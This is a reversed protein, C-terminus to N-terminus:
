PRMQALISACGTINAVLLTIFILYAIIFVTRRRPAPFAGLIPLVFYALCALGYLIVRRAVLQPAPPASPYDSFLDTPPLPGLLHGIGFPVLLGLPFTSIAVPVIILLVEFGFPGSSWLRALTLTAVALFWTAVFLLYRNRPRDVGSAGRRAPAQGSNLGRAAGTPGRSPLGQETEQRWAAADGQREHARRQIESDNTETGV